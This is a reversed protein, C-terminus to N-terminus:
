TERIKINHVMLMLKRKLRYIDTRMGKCDEVVRAGDELYVFDAIYSAAREVVKGQEDIAKPVLLFPVQEQLDSIAGDAELARLEAARKAERKSAYGNTRQNRYKSAPEVMHAVPADQQAYERAQRAKWAAHQEDSWRLM